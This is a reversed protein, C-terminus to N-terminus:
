SGTRRCASTRARSSRRGRDGRLAAARQHAREVRAPPDRGHRSRRRRARDLRGDEGAGGGRGRAPRRRRRRHLRLVLRREVGADRGGDARRQAPDDVWHMESWPLCLGTRGGSHIDVVIEARPFLATSLYHALQEDPPGDPRGPFSRNLNAGSPWLRTYARSAEPSACPIAIVQGHVPRPRSSGPSTSPRWRGRPSTGTSAASSSRWRGTAARSRSSRCGSARGAARTARARSSSGDSTSAPRM